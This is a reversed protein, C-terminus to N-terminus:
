PWSLILPPSNVVLSKTAVFAFEPAGIVKSMLPGDAWPLTTTVCLAWNPPAKFMLRVLSIGSVRVVKSRKSQPDLVVPWNVLVLTVPNLELQHTFKLSKYVAPVIWTIGGKAAVMM